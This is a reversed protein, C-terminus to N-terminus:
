VSVVSACYELLSRSAWRKDKDLERRLRVRLKHMLRGERRDSARAYRRRNTYRRVIWNPDRGFAPNDSGAEKETSLEYAIDILKRGPCAQRIVDIIECMFAEDADAEVAKKDRHKMGLRTPGGNRVPNAPRMGPVHLGALALVADRDTSVALYSYLAPLKDEPKEHSKLHWRLPGSPYARTKPGTRQFGSLHRVALALVAEDDTSVGLDAYLLPLKVEPQQGDRLPRALEGKYIYRTTTHMPMAFPSVGVPIRSGSFEEYNLIQLRGVRCIGLKQPRPANQM